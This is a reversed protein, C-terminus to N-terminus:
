KEKTINEYKHLLEQIEEPKTNLILDNATGEKMAIIFAPWFFSNVFSKFEKEDLHKNNLFQERCYYIM